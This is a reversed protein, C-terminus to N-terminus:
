APEGSLEAQLSAILRECSAIDKTTRDYQQRLIGLRRQAYLLECAPLNAKIAAIKERNEARSSSMWYSEVRAEIVALVDEVGDGYVPEYDFTESINGFPTRLCLQWQKDDSLLNYRGHSLTFYVRSEIPESM